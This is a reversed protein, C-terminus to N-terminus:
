GAGSRLPLPTVAGGHSEVAYHDRLDDANLAAAASEVAAVTGGTVLWVPPGEFHRTAAVLGAGPGFVHAKGGNEDLGVLGWAGGEREFEAYVGSEGPGDEILPAIPESRLKAWPGVLVRIAGKPSGAAVKV